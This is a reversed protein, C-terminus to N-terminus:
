CVARVAFRTFGALTDGTDWISCNSSSSGILFVIEKVRSFDGESYSSAILAQAFSAIADALLSVALRVQYCIQNAAQWM